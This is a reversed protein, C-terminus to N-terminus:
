ITRINVNMNICDFKVLQPESHPFKLDTLGPHCYSSFLQLFASRIVQTQIWANLCSTKRVKLVVESDSIFVSSLQSSFTNVVGGKSLELAAWTNKCHSSPSPISPFDCCQFCLQSTKDWSKIDLQLVSWRHITIILNRELSHPRYNM